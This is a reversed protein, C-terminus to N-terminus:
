LSVTESVYILLPIMENRKPNQEVTAALGVELPLIQKVNQFELQGTTLRHATVLHFSVAM